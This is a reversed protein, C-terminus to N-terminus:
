YGLLRQDLLEVVYGIRYDDLRFLAMPRSQKSWIGHKHFGDIAQGLIGKSGAEIRLANAVIVVCFNEPEQM